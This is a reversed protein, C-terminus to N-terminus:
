RITKLWQGSQPEGAPYLDNLLRLQIQADPLQAASQALTALDQGPLVRRVEIRWARAWRREDEKIPRLSSLSRPIELAYKAPWPLPDAAAVLLFTEGGIRMLLVRADRTGFPTNLALTAGHGQRGPERIVIESRLPRGPFRERLLTRLPRDGGETVQELVIFADRAPSVLLLRQASNVARWGKPFDLVIGLPGHYFRSGRVIGQQESDGFVLGNLRRIFAVDQGRHAGATPLREAANIVEQLRKDNDPHTSFLGHYVRPARGERRALEIEHQEQHKLVRIVRLIAKPDYGARSLYHAGLRDAELEHERGYGRVLATGAVNLLERGGVGARAGLIATFLGTVTTASHQRVAHRATVHGIEHGLVAALEAESNLYALLGRTIYVYGGPLAFANVEPSDLLTFRYDLYPRHSVRALREGVNRILKSLDANDYEGYQAVIQRHNRQGLSIEQAESILVFDSEGTVPNVACGAIAQASFILLALCTRQKIRRM